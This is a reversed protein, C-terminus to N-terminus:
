FDDDYVLKEKSLDIKTYESVKKEFFNQKNRLSILEMFKFPNSVNYLKNFGFQALLRDACFEIYQKM